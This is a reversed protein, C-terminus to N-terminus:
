KESTLTGLFAVLAARDADSLRLPRLTLERHGVLARGPLTDYFALVADLTALSGDHMYPATIAVNLLSPTKFAAAFDPFSPDLYRLEPCDRTDSHPGLCNFPDGLVEGAGRARGPDVGGAPAVPLGLNHFQGDSLTPGHHCDVCGAEGVFLKLGRLEEDTLGEGTAAWRDFRSPAPLLTREFAEIAKGVQALVRDPDDAVGGFVADFGDAHEAAVRARVAAADLGHELPNRLPGTAQAWASDARGDWFYWTQWASTLVTPTNRTGEGLATAVREGDTFALDPVHCSACSTQGDASLGEDFFLAEGLAAAAPSDAVANSPRAPPPPLPSLSQALAREADTLGAPSCALLLIM